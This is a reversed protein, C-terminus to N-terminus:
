KSYVDHVLCSKYPCCKIPATKCTWLTMGIDDFCSCPLTWAPMTCSNGLTKCRWRFAALLSVGLHNPPTDGQGDGHHCVEEWLAVGVKVLGCRLITGSGPGFTNLSGCCPQNKKENIWKNSVSHYYILWSSKLMEDGQGVRTIPSYLKSCTSASM